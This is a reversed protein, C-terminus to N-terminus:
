PRHHRLIFPRTTKGARLGLYDVRDSAKRSKTASLSSKIHTKIGDIAWPRGTNGQSLITDLSEYFGTSDRESWPTPLADSASGLSRYLDFNGKHCTLISLQRGKSFEILAKITEQGRQDDFDALIDGMIIPVAESTTEYVDILGLRMALYLQEKAGRSMESITKRRALNDQISLETTKATSAEAPKMVM